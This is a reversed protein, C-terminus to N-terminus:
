SPLARDNNKVGRKRKGLRYSGQPDVVIRGRLAARGLLMRFGMEDRDTLGIEIAWVDEGLKVTTEVFVRQETRHGPNSVGRKDAVAAECIKVTADDRQNPHISFRAWEAGDRDFMEIDFAHIASTRAGTDLKAKIEAVGLAPLAVWERWGAIKKPQM